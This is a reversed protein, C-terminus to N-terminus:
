TFCLWKKHHSVFGLLAVLSLAFVVWMVPILAGVDLGTISGAVLSSTALVFATTLGTMTKINSGAVLNKQLAFWTAIGVVLTLMLVGFGANFGHIFHSTPDIVGQAQLIFVCTCGAVFTSGISGWARTKTYTNDWKNFLIILILTLVLVSTSITLAGTAPHMNRLHDPDCVGANIATCFTTAGLSGCFALGAIGFLVAETVMKRKHFFLCFAVLVAPSIFISGVFGSFNWLPMFCWVTICAGGALAFVPVAVQVWTKKSGNQTLFFTLCFLALTVILGVGGNLYQTTLPNFGFTTQNAICTSLTGIGLVSLASFVCLAATGAGPSSGAPQGANAIGYILWITFLAALVTASFGAGASGITGITPCSLFM